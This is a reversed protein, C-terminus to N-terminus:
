RQCLLCVVDVGEVDFWKLYFRAGAAGIVMIRSGRVCAEIQARHMELDDAFMPGSRKLIKKLLEEKVM